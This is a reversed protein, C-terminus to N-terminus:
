HYYGKDGWGIRLYVKASNPNGGYAQSFNSPVFAKTGAAGAYMNLKDKTILKREYGFTVAKVWQAGTAGDTVQIELQGPTRQLIELRGYFNNKGLQYVFEELFSNLTLNDTRNKVQGWITSTNLMGDKIM